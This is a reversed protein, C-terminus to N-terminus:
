ESSPLIRAVLTPVAFAGSKMRRASLARLMARSFALCHCADLQLPAEVGDAVLDPVVRRRDRAAILLQRRQDFLAGPKEHKQVFFLGGARWVREPHVVSAEIDCLRCLVKCGM